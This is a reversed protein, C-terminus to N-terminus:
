GEAAQRIRHELREYVHLEEAQQHHHKPRHIRLPGSALVPWRDTRAETLFETIRRVCVGAAQGQGYDAIECRPLYRPETWLRNWGAEVTETWETEGRLTICPTRHFYAEKQLGGSDTLACAAHRLLTQM